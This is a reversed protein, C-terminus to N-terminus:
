EGMLVSTFEEWTIEGDGDADLRKMAILERDGLLSRAEADAELGAKLEARSISGDGDTDLRNFLAQVGQLMTDFCKQQDNTGYAISRRHHRAHLMTTRIVLATSACGDCDPQYAVNGEDEYPTGNALMASRRVGRPM